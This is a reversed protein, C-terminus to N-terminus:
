LVMKLLATWIYDFLGLIMGSVVVMIIVVVTGNTTEKQTPWTVRALETVVENMFQNAKENRYLVFFVLAGIVLSVGRVMLDVNRIRAELDYAGVSYLGGAFVVYGVLGALALYCLNVWKQYQPTEM